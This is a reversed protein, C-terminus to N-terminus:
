SPTYATMFEGRGVLDWVASPIHHEYAGAGIFSLTVEDQRARENMLRLLAMESIGDPVHQLKGSRLDEPIEDFLAEISTVGVAALMRREDDQTHPVFPM